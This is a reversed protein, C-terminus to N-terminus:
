SSRQELGARQVLHRAVDGCLSDLRTTYDEPDSTRLQRPYHELSAELFERTAPSVRDRIFGTLRQAATLLRMPGYDAPEDVQTRASTVLLALLEIAEDETLVTPSSM